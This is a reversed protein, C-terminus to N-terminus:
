STFWNSAISIELISIKSSDMTQIYLRDENFEINVQDCVNKINQVINSFVEIKVPDTIHIEMTPKIWQSHLLKEILKGSEEKSYHTIKKQLCSESVRYIVPLVSSIASPTNYTYLQEM